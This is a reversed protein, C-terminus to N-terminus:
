CSERRAGAVCTTIIVILKLIIIISLLILAYLFQKAFFLYWATVAAFLTATIGSIAAIKNKISNNTFFKILPYFIVICSTWLFPTIVLRIPDLLVSWAIVHGLASPILACLMFGTYDIELTQTKDHSISNIFINRRALLTKIHTFIVFVILPYLVPIAIYDAFSNLWLTIKFDHPEVIQPIFYRAIASLCGAILAIVPYSSIGEPRITQWFLYFAIVWLACFLIM